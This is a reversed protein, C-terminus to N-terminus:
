NGAMVPSSPPPSSCILCVPPSDSVFLSPRAVNPRAERRRREADRGAQRHRKMKGVAALWLNFKEFEKRELVLVGVGIGM